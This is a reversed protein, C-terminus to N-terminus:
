RLRYARLITQEVTNGARDAGSARLSVWRAGKAAPVEVRRDQAHGRVTLASWTVGDDFSAAVRLGRLTRTTEIPVTLARDARATNRADLEPRFRIATLPLATVATDGAGKSEFEWAVHIESSPVDDDTRVSDIELRYRRREPAVAFEADGPVQQGDAFLRIAHDEYVFGSRGEADGHLVPTISITDGRRTIGETSPGFVGHNWSERYSCTARYERVAHSEAIFSRDDLWEYLTLGWRAGPSANVFRTYAGPTYMSWLPMYVTDGSATVLHTDLEVRGAASQTAITTDIRALDHHRVRRVFGTPVHGEVLWGLSYTAPSDDYTGDGKPRAWSEALRFKVSPSPGLGAVFLEAAPEDAFAYMENVEGTTPTYLVALEASARVVDPDPVTISVPRAIRADLTRTQDRALEFPPDFLLTTNIGDSVYAVLHYTGRPLRVTDRNVFTMGGTESGVAVSSTRPLGARDLTHLALDYSEPERQVGIPTSVVVGTGTALVQGGLYGFAGERRTDCTVTVATEGHAPVTISSASVAFTGEPVAAGSSSSARVAIALVADADGANRYTLTTAIPADDDHPYRPGGCSIGTPESTVQQHIARGVDVRGAGQTFADLAPNPQAAAMLTAKLQAPGLEPRAQALVAAAGAVHPTAFSTGGHLDYFGEGEPNASSRATTIDLGPAAIDPKMALDGVRPGRSSFGVLQDAKDFAAVALAADASAPSAVTEYREGSNGAAIVFLVGYQATLTAVAVEELDLEPTDDEGLSMNIVKAGSEAAWQMAALVASDDCYGGSCVKADLLKAGPAIGRYRGGSAAGTGAIVGAVGTGHGDHDLADGDTFNRAGIVRDALDPHSTDIGSDIVAVTVGAGDFGEAWAPPAGIRAASVDLMTRLKGDLWVKDIGALAGTLDRWLSGDPTGRIALANAAALDRVIQASPGLALPAVRATGRSPATRQVILPVHDLRDHGYELLLSIEFLRRDLKGADLLPQADSPVVTIRRNSRSTRFGVGARGVGSRVTVAGSATVTVRDGTILTITRPPASDVQAPEVAAGRDPPALDDDGCAAVFTCLSLLRLLQQSCVAGCYCPEVGFDVGTTAHTNSL